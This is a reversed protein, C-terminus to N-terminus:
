EVKYLVLESRTLQEDSQFRLVYTTGPQLEVMGGDAAPLASVYTGRPGSADALRRVHPDTWSPATVAWGVGDHTLTYTEHLDMWHTYADGNDVRVGAPQFAIYPTENDIEHNYWSTSEFEIEALRTAEMTNM